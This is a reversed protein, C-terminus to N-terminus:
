RKVDEWRVCVECFAIGTRFKTRSSEVSVIEVKMVHSTEEQVSVLCFMQM